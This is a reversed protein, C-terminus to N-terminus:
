VDVRFFRIHRAGQRATVWGWTAMKKLHGNVTSESMNTMNAIDKVVPEVGRDNLMAVTVLIFSAAPGAFRGATMTLADAGTGITLKHALHQYTDAVRTM